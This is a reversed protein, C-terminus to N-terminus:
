VKKNLQYVHVPRIVEQIDKGYVAQIDKGYVAMFQKAEAEDRNFLPPLINPGHAKLTPNHRYREM